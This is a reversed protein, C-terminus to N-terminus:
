ATLEGCQDPTDRMTPISCSNLLSLVEDAGINDQYQLLDALGASALLEQVDDALEDYCTCGFGPGDPGVALGLIGCCDETATLQPPDEQICSALANSVATTTEDSPGVSALLDRCEDLGIAGVQVTLLAAVGALLLLQSRIM